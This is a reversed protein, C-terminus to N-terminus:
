LMAKMMTLVVIAIPTAIMFFAFLFAFVGALIKWLLKGNRQKKVKSAKAM